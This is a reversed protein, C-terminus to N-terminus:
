GLSGRIEDYLAPLGSLIEALDEVRDGEHFAALAEEIDDQLDDDRYQAGWKRFDGGPELRALAADYDDSSFRTRAAEFLIEAHVAPHVLYHELAHVNIDHVHRVNFLDKATGYTAARPWAEEARFRRVKSVPDLFHDVNVFRRCANGRPDRSSFMPRVASRYPNGRATRALLRSTNAIQFIADFRFLGPAFPARGFREIGAQLDAATVGEGIGQGDLADLADEANRLWETTVMRQIADHAVTTGLSHAALVYRTEGPRDAERAGIHKMMLSAVKLQVIRRVLAFQHYLLVDLVHSAFWDDPDSANSLWDGVGEVAGPTAEPLRGQFQGALASWQGLIGAFVDDYRIEVCEVADDLADPGDFGPYRAAEEALVTRPGHQAHIWGANHQGMGHLFFLVSRAM